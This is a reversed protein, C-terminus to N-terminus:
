PFSRGLRDPQSRESGRTAHRSERCGGPRRSAEGAVSHAGGGWGPGARGWGTSVQVTSACKGNVCIKSEVHMVDPDEPCSYTEELTGACPLATPRPPTPAPAAHSMPHPHPLTTLFPQLPPPLPVRAPLM